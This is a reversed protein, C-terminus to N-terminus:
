IFIGKIIRVYQSVTISVKYYCYQNININYLGEVTLLYNDLLYKSSTGEDKVDQVIRRVSQTFKGVLNTSASVIFFVWMLLFLVGFNWFRLSSFKSLMSAVVFSM